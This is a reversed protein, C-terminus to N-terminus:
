ELFAFLLRPVEPYIELHMGLRLAVTEPILRNLLSKQRLANPVTATPVSEVSWCRASGRGEKVLVRRFAMLSINIYPSACEVRSNDVYLSQVEVERPKPLSDWRVPKGTLPNGMLIIGTETGTTQTHRLLVTNSVMWSLRYGKWVPTAWCGGRM